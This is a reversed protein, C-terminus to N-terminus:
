RDGGEWPERPKDKGAEVIQRSQVYAGTLQVAAGMPVGRETLGRLYLAAVEADELIKEAPFTM